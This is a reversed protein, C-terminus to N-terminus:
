PGATAPRCTRAEDARIDFRSDPIQNDPDPQWRAPGWFYHQLGNSLLVFRCGLSKAYGRAQEKAALLDSGTRKAELVALPKGNTDLLLYDAKGNIHQYDDGLANIRARTLKVGVELQVNAPQGSTDPLIWGAERLLADIRVRAAAENTAPAPMSRRTDAFSYHWALPYPCPTVVQYRLHHLVQCSTHCQQWREAWRM